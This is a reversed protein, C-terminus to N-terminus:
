KVDVIEFDPSITFLDIPLHHNEVVAKWRKLYRADDDEDVILLVGAHLKRLGAYHLSQGISEAWKEAFDVEIAHTATVIDARTNDSMRVEERGGRAVVWAHQYDLERLKVPKTATTAADGCGALILVCLCPVFLLRSWPLREAKSRENM